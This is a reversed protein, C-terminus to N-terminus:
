IDAHVARIKRTRAASVSPELISHFPWNKKINSVPCQPTLATYKNSANSM